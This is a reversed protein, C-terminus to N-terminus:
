RYNSNFSDVFRIANAWGEATPEFRAIPSIISKDDIFHPDIFKQNVLNILKNKFVLIKIGEYHTCNPYQIKLILYGRQELADLLKYNKPDPDISRRPVSDIYGGNHCGSGVSM